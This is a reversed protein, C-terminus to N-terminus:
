WQLSRWDLRCLFQGHHNLSDPGGSERFHRLQGLVDRPLIIGAPNSTVTGTGTGDVVVTLSLSRALAPLVNSLMLAIVLILVPLIRKTKM